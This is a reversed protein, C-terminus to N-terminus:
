ATFGCNAPRKTLTGWTRNLNGVEYRATAPNFIAQLNRRTVLRVNELIAASAKTSAQATGLATRRRRGFCIVEYDVTFPWVINTQTAPSVESPIKRNAPRDGSLRQRHCQSLGFLFPIAHLLQFQPQPAAKEM